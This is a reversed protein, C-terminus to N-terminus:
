AYVMESMELLCDTLVQITNEFERQRIIDTSIERFTFHYKDDINEM